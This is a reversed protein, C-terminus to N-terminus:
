FTHEFGSMPVNYERGTCFSMDIFKEIVKPFASKSVKEKEVKPPM